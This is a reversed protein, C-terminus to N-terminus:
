DSRDSEHYVRAFPNVIFATVFPYIYMFGNIVRGKYDSFERTEGRPFKARWMSRDDRSQDPGLYEISYGGVVNIRNKDVSVIQATDGVSLLVQSVPDPNKNPNYSPNKVPVDTRDRLM